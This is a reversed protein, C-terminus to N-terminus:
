ESVPERVGDEGKDPDYLITKKQNLARAWAKAEMEAKELTPEIGEAMVPGGTSQTEALLERVEWVWVIDAGDFRNVPPPLFM